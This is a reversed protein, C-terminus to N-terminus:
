LSGDINIAGIVKHPSVRYLTDACVSLSGTGSLTQVSAVQARTAVSTILAM